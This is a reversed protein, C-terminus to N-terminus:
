VMHRTLQKRVWQVSEGVVRRESALLSISALSAVALVPMAATAGFQLAWTWGCVVGTWLLFIGARLVERPLAVAKARHLLWLATLLAAVEGILFGIVIAELSRFYLNATFALPLGIVRAINNFLIITSRGISSALTTPWVRLLRATQLAGILGFVQLPQVFNSGYLLPTAVPAVLAFGALMAISLLTIRGGLREREVAYREPIDRARVLQPLYLGTILGILMSTPYFILLLVASYHGLAAAGLGNAVLVRDGQSGFFLLFGNLVLPAAFRSFRMSQDRAFAFRYPRRATLHSVIALALARTVLGYVVASADHTILAAAGTVVLTLSESVLMGASEPRFDSQRQVRRFDLHMFGIIFPALALAMFSAKLEPARFLTAILGAFIVMASAILTGRAVLVLQILGQLGPTDGDKDQVLFRDSGTDSVTQFFQATLMLMAALGLEEVGLLRALLTFRLLAFAQSVFNAAFYARAGKRVHPRVHEALERLRVRGM